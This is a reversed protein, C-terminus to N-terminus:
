PAWTSGPAAAQREDRRDKLFILPLIFVALMSALWVIVTALAWTTFGAISVGDFVVDTVILGILVAVLAVGGRLAPASTLAIRMMLPEALVQVGTFILVAVIFGKWEISMDDLILDAVLLGLANAGLRILASILLRIM